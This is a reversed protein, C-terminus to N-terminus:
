KKSCVDLLFSHQIKLLYCVVSYFYNEIFLIRINEKLKNKKMTKLRGIPYSMMGLSHLGLEDDCLFFLTSSLTQLNWVVRGKLFICVVGTHHQKYLAARVLWIFLYNAKLDSKNVCSVLPFLLFRPTVFSHRQSEPYIPISFNQKTKKYSLRIDLSLDRQVFLFGVVFKVRVMVRVIVEFRFWSFM